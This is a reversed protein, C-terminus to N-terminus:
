NKEVSFRSVVMPLRSLRDSGLARRAKESCSVAVCTTGASAPTVAQPNLSIMQVDVNKYRVTLCTVSRDHSIILRRHDSFMLWTLFTRIARVSWRLCTSGPFRTRRDRRSCFGIGLRGAHHSVDSTAALNGGSLDAFSERVNTHRRAFASGAIRRRLHPLEAAVRPEAFVWDLARYDLL